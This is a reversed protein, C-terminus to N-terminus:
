IAIEITEDNVAQTEYAERFMGQSSSERPVISAVRFLKELQPKRLSRLKLFRLGETSECLEWVRDNKFLGAAESFEM